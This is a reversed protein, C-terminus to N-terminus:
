DIPILVKDGVKLDDKVGGLLRSYNANNIKYAANGIDRKSYNEKKLYFRVYKEAIIWVNDGFVVKYVGYSKGSKEKIGGTFFEDKEVEEKFVTKKVIETDKSEKQNISVDNRKSEINNKKASSYDDKSKQCSLFVFFVLISIFLCKM